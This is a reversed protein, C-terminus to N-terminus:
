GLLRALQYKRKGDEVKYGDVAKSLSEARYTLAKVLDRLANAVEDRGRIFAEGARKEAECIAAKVGALEGATSSWCRGFEVADTPYDM